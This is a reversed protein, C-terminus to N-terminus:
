FRLLAQRRAMTIDPSSATSPRPTDTMPKAKVRKKLKTQKEYLMEQNQQIVELQRVLDDYRDQLADQKKEPKKDKKAAVPTVVKCSHGASNGADEPESDEEEIIDVRKNLFKRFAEASSSKAKRHKPVPVQKAM